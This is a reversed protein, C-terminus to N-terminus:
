DAFTSNELDSYDPYLPAATVVPAPQGAGVFVRAPWAKYYSGFTDKKVPMGPKAVERVWSADFGDHESSMQERVGPALVTTETVIPAPAPRHNSIFPGKTTVQRGDNTGYFVFYMNDGYVATQMLLDGPTDNTFRFDQAGLYITADLGYPKYYPVAYSHSRRSDIQLGGNLAARFVTTSVQCIGGGYEKETDNGKIVLEEVYGESPDVTRLINNFSFQEGQKIILGNYKRAAVKINTRRNAPSGRFNSHGITLVEKIGRAQLAEDAVVPSYTEHAPVRVYKYNKSLAKNVLVELTDFDVQFGSKPFGKISVWGNETKNIKVADLTEDLVSIRSRLVRELEERNIKSAYKIQTDVADFDSPLNEDLELPVEFGGVSLVYTEVSDLLAPQSLFNLSITRDEFLLKLNTPKESTTAAEASFAFLMCAILLWARNKMKM